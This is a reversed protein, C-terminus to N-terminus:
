AHIADATGEAVLVTREVFAVPEVVSAMEGGKLAEEALCCGLCDKDTCVFRGCFSGEGNESLNM